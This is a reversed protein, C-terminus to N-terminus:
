QWYVAYLVCWDILMNEVDIADNTFQNLINLLGNEMVTLGLSAPVFDM